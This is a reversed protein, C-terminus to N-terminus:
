DAILAVAIYIPITLGTLVITTIVLGLRIWLADVGMYNALGSCVGFLKGDQKDLHFGGQPTRNNNQTLNSM